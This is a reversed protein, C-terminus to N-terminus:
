STVDFIMYQQRKEQHQLQLLFKGLILYQMLAILQFTITGLLYPEFISGALLSLLGAIVLNCQKQHIPERNGYRYLKFIMKLCEWGFLLLPILGILGFAAAAGLWSNEGYGSLRDGQLPKGFFPYDKFTEWQASWVHTRTDKFLEPGFFRDLQSGTTEMFWQQSSEFVMSILLLAGALMAARTILKGSINYFLLISVVTMIMGTRSGTMLIGIGIIAAFAILVGKFWIQNEEREILYLLAPITTSLLVAAHQPNGTTGLFRGSWFTIPYLNIAGQYLNVIAFIIGVLSIVSIGWKFDTETELWRSPGQLIMVVLGSFTLLALIAFILSGSFGNKIFVIGQILCLYPLPSPILVKQWKNKSLFIIVLLLGLLIITIPRGQDRIQELPFVLDPPDPVWKSRPEKFSAIVAMLAVLFWHLPRYKEKYFFIIFLLAIASAVLGYPTLLLDLLQKLYSM